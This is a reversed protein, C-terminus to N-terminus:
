RGHHRRQLPQRRLGQRLLRRPSPRWGAPTHQEKFVVRITDGVEAHIPPGLVGLHRWRAPVPARHRFTKDTYGRFLSKLYVHGIRDRGRKVFVRADEGFPKGTVV